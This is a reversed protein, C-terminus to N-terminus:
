ESLFSEHKEFAERGSQSRNCDGKSAKGCRGRLGPVIRGFDNSTSGRKGDNTSCDRVASVVAAVHRAMMAIVVVVGVIVPVVVVAM